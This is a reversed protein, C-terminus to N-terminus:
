PRKKRNALFKQALEEDPDVGAGRRPPAAEGEFGTGAAGGSAMVVRLRTDIEGRKESAREPKDGLQPMLGRALRRAEVDTVAKGSLAYQSALVLAVLDDYMQQGEDSQVVNGILDPMFGKKLEEGLKDRSSPRWGENFRATLREHAPKALEYQAAATRQQVTTRGAGGGSETQIGDRSEPLPARVGPDRTPAGALNRPLIQFNGQADQVVAGGAERARQMRGEEAAKDMADRMSQIERARNTKEGELERRLNQNEDFSRQQFEMQNRKAWENFMRTSDEVQMQREMEQRERTGQRSAALGTNAAKLLYGLNLAPM